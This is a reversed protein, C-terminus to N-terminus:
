EGISERIFDAKDKATKFAGARELQKMINRSAPDLRSEDPASVSGGGRPSGGTQAKKGYAALEPFRKLMTDNVFTLAEEVSCGPNATFYAAEVRGATERMKQPAKEYWTAEEKKWRDAYRKVQDLTELYPSEPEDKADDDAAPREKAKDIEADLREIEEFDQARIADARETKLNAIRRDVEASIISDQNKKLADMEKRMKSMAKHSRSIEDAMERKALFTEASVWKRGTRKEYADKDPDWGKARAELISADLDLNPEDGADDEPKAASDPENDQDDAGADVEADVVPKDDGADDGLEAALAAAFAEDSM